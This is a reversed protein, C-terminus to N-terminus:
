CQDPVTPDALAERCFTACDLVDEWAFHESAAAIAGVLALKAAAELMRGHHEAAIAGLDLMGDEPDLEREEMGDVFDHLGPFAATALAMAQRIDRSRPERGKAFADALKRCAEAGKQYDYDTACFTYDTV